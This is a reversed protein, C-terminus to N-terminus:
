GWGLAAARRNAGSRGRGGAAPSTGAIAINVAYDRCRSMHDTPPGDRASYCRINATHILDFRTEHWTATARKASQQERDNEGPVDVARVIRSATSFRIHGPFHRARIHLQCVTRSRYRHTERRQYAVGCPDSPGAPSVDHRPERRYNRFSAYHSRLAPSNHIGRRVATEIARDNARILSVPRSRRSAHAHQKSDIM